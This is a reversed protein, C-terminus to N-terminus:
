TLQRVKIGADKALKDVFPGYHGATSDGIFLATKKSKKDGIFCNSLRDTYKINKEKMSSAHCWGADLDAYAVNVRNAIIDNNLENDPYRYSFGNT